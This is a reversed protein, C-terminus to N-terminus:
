SCINPMTGNVAHPPLDVCIRVSGSHSGAYSAQLVLPHPQDTMQEAIRCPVGAEGCIEDAAIPPETGSYADVWEAFQTGCANVTAVPIETRTEEPIDLPLTFSTYINAARRFIVGGCSDGPSDSDRPVLLLSRAGAGTVTINWRGGVTSLVDVCEYGSLGTDRGGLEVVFDDNVLRAGPNGIGCTYGALPEDDAPKCSPHSPDVDCNPPKASAPMAAAIAIASAVLTIWLRKM